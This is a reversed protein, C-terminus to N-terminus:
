EAQEKHEEGIAKQVAKIKKYVEARIKGGLRTFPTLEDVLKMQVALEEMCDPWYEVTGPTLDSLQKQHPKMDFFLATMRAIKDRKANERTFWIGSEAFADKDNPKVKKNLDAAAISAIGNPCPVGIYRCLVHAMEDDRGEPSSCTGYPDAKVNRDWRDRHVALQKESAPKPGSPEPEDLSPKAREGPQDDDRKQWDPPVTEGADPVPNVVKIPQDVHEAGRFQKITDEDQTFAYSARCTTLAGDVLCRKKAMKILTNVLGARDPNEYREQWQYATSKYDNRWRGEGTAKMHKGREEEPKDAPIWLYRYKPEHSNANGYGEGVVEGTVLRVVNCRMTYVFLQTDWDEVRDVFEFDRAVLGFYHLLKEAGPKHLFPKKIGFETGYDAGDVMVDKVFAELKDQEHKAQGVSMAPALYTQEVVPAPLAVGDETQVAPLQAEPEESTQVETPGPM